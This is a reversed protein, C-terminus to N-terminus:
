LRCPNRRGSGPIVPEGQFMARHLYPPLETRTWAARRLRRHFGYLLAPNQLAGKSTIGLAAVANSQGKDASARCPRNLYGSHPVQGANEASEGFGPCTRPANGAVCSACKLRLAPGPVEGDAIAPETCKSWRSPTRAGNWDHM